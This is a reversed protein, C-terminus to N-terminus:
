RATLKITCNTVQLSVKVTQVHHTIEAVQKEEVQIDTLAEVHDELSKKM